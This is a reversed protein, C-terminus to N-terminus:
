RAVGDRLTTDGDGGCRVTRAAIVRRRLSDPDNVCESLQAQPVPQGADGEDPTTQQRRATPLVRKLRGTEPAGDCHPLVGAVESVVDGHQVIGAPQVDDTICQFERAPDFSQQAIPRQPLCHPLSRGGCHLTMAVQRPAGGGRQDLQQTSLQM